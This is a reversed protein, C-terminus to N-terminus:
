EAFISLFFNFLELFFCYISPTDKNFTDVLESSSCSCIISIYVISSLTSLIVFFQVMMKKFTTNNIQVQIIYNYM